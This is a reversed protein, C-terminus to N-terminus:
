TSSESLMNTISWIWLHWIALTHGFAIHSTVSAGLHLMVNWWLFFAGKYIDVLQKNV